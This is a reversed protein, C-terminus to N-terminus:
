FTLWGSDFLRANDVRKHAESVRKHVLLTFAFMKLCELRDQLFKTKAPIAQKPGGVGVKCVGGDFCCAKLFIGEVVDVPKCFLVYFVLCLGMIMIMGMCCVHGLRRGWLKPVWWVVTVGKLCVHMKEMFQSIGFSFHVVMRVLWVRM